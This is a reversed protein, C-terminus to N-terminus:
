DARNVARVTLFLFLGSVSTFFYLQGFDLVGLGFQRFRGFLSIWELTRATLGEYIAPSALALVLILTGGASAFLVGIWIKGVASYVITGLVIALVLSFVVGSAM